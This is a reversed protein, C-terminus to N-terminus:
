WYQAGCVGIAPFPDFNLCEETKRPLLVSAAHRAHKAGTGSDFLVLILETPMKASAIKGQAPNQAIFGAVRLKSRMTRMAFGIVQTNDVGARLGLGV